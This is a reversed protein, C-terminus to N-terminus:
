QAVKVALLLTTTMVSASHGAQTRGHALVSGRTAVVYSDQASSLTSLLDLSGHPLRTLGDLPGSILAYIDAVADAMTVGPEIIDLSLTAAFAGDKHLTAEMQDVSGEFGVIQFDPFHAAVADKDPLLWAARPRDPEFDRLGLRERVIEATPKGFDVNTMKHEGTQAHIPAAVLLLVSLALMLFPTTSPIQSRRSNTEM